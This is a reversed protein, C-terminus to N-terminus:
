GARRRGRWDRRGGAGSRRGRGAGASRAAATRPRRGCRRAPCPRVRPRRGCRGPASLRLPIRSFRLTSLPAAKDVTSAAHRVLSFGLHGRVLGFFQAEDAFAHAGETSFKGGFVPAPDILFLAERFGEDGGHGLGAPERRHDRFFVAAGAQAEGLSRHDELLDVTAATVGPGDMPLHVVHEGQESVAAFLLFAVVQRLQRVALQAQLGHTDGLRGGAGVGGLDLGGGHAPAVLVDDVPLLHPDRADLMGVQHDQQCAGRRQGLHLALGLAHRDEKDVQALGDAVAQGHLRDGVHDVVLGVLQEEVVQLNGGAAQDALLALAKAVDKVAQIGLARQDGGLADAIAAPEDFLGRLVGAVTHYEAPGDPLVLAHLEGDGFRM